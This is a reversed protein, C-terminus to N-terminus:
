AAVQRERQLARCQSMAKALECKIKHNEEQLELNEMWPPLKEAEELSVQRLGAPTMAKAFVAKEQHNERKLALIEEAMAQMELSMAEEQQALLQRDRAHAADQSQCEALKLRLDKAEQEKQDAQSQAEELQKEFKFKESRLNGEMRRAAEDSKRCAAEKEQLQRRTQDQESQLLVNEGSLRIVEAKSAELQSQWNSNEARLDDITKKYADVEKATSEADLKERREQIVRESIQMTTVTETTGPTQRATGQGQTHVEGTYRRLVMDRVMEGLVLNEKEHQDMQPAVQVKSMTSTLSPTNSTQVQQEKSQPALLRPNVQQLPIHPVPGPRVSPKQPVGITRQRAPTSVSAMYTPIGNTIAYGGAGSKYSVPEYSTWVSPMTREYRDPRPTGSRSRVTYYISRYPDRSRPPEFSQGRSHVVAPIAPTRGRPLCVGGVPTQLDAPATHIVKTNWDAPQLCATSGYLAPKSDLVKPTNLQAQQPRPMKLKNDTQASPDNSVSAGNVPRHQQVPSAQLSLAKTVPAQM